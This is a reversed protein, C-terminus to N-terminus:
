SSTSRARRPTSGCAAGRPGASRSWRRRAPSTSSCSPCTWSRRCPSPATPARASWPRPAPCRTSIRLPRATRARARRHALRHLRLEGRAGHGHRARASRPRARLHGAPRQAQADRLDHLDQVLHLGRSDAGAPRRAAGGRHSGLHHPSLRLRHRAQGRRPSPLGRRSGARDPGPAPLRLAGRDHHRRAGGLHSRLPLRRRPDRLRADASRFSLAHRHRRSARLPRRRRHGPPGPGLNRGLTTIVGGAIGIDAHFVDAATVVVANRIVTDFEAM